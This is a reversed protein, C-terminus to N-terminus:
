HCEFWEDPTDDETDPQGIIREIPDFDDWYNELIYDMKEAYEGLTKEVEKPTPIKGENWRIIDELEKFRRSLYEQSMPVEKGMFINHWYPHEQLERMEEKAEEVMWLHGYNKKHVEEWLDDPDVITTKIGCCKALVEWVQILIEVAYEYPTDKTMHEAQERVNNM